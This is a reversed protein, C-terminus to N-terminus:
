KRRRRSRGVHFGKRSGISKGSKYFWWAVGAMVALGILEMGGGKELTQSLNDKGRPVENKNFQRM